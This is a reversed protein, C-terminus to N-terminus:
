GIGGHAFWAHLWVGVRSSDDAYDLATRGVDDLFHADSNTIAAYGDLTRGHRWGERRWTNAMVEVADYDAGAPIFGLQSILSNRARGVHAPVALGGRAHIDDVLEDLGIDAGAQRLRDDTDVIEDKEDYVLQWGLTEQPHPRDPLAADLRRQFDALAPAAPFYVLVHVEERTAVEIGPVVRLGFAPALRLALAAHASANHDTIAIADLGARRAQALVRGPSMLDEACASLATHVHLDARM